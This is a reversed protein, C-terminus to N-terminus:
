ERSIREELTEFEELRKVTFYNNWFDEDKRNSIAILLATNRDRYSIWLRQTERFGEADITYRNRYIPNRKLENMINKYNVNLRKDNVKFSNAVSPLHNDRLESLFVLYEERQESLSSQAWMAYGSGDHGEENWVKADLFRMTAMYASDLLSNKLGFFVKLKQIEDALREQEEVEWKQACYTLGMGSTVYDCVRFEVLTDSANMAAYYDQIAGEVEGPVFGGRVILQMVLESSPNEFREGRSAAAALEWIYYGSNFDDDAELNYKEIFAAGDFKPISAAIELTKLAEVENFFSITPHLAKVQRYLNLAEIPDVFVLDSTRFFMYELAHSLAESHGLKAAKVYYNKTVEEPHTYRYALYFNADASGEEAAKEYWVRAEDYQKADYLTNAKELSISFNSQGVGLTSCLTLIAITIRIGM